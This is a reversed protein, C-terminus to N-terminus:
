LPSEIWQFLNAVAPKASEPTEPMKFLHQAADYELKTWTRGGDGSSALFGGNGAIWVRNEMVAVANVGAGIDPLATDVNWEFPKVWWSVDRVPRYPEHWAYPSRYQLYAIATVFLFALVAYIFLTREPANAGTARPDGAPRQPQLADTM